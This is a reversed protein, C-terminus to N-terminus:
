RQKKQGRAARRYTGSTFEGPRLTLPPLTMVPRAAAVADRCPLQPIVIAASAGTYDPSTCTTHPADDVPCRRPVGFASSLFAM